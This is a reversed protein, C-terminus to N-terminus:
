EVSKSSRPGCARSFTEARREVSDDIRDHVHSVGVDDAVCGPSTGARGSDPDEDGPVLSRMPCTAGARLHNPRRLGNGPVVASDTAGSRQTTVSDTAGSRQATLLHEGGIWEAVVTTPLSSYESQLQRIQSEAGDALLGRPRREEEAPGARTGPLRFVIRPPGFRLLVHM